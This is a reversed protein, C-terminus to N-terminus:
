VGFHRLTDKKVSGFALAAIKSSVRPPLAIGSMSFAFKWLIRSGAGADPGTVPTVETYEGFQKMGPVSADKGYFAHRYHHAVPDEEWIFFQEHITVGGLLVATRTTTADYPPPSTYTIQRIVRCWDLTNQRSFEAWVQEPAAPVVIDITYRAPAEDYFSETIPQLAFPM